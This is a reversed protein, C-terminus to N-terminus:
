VAKTSKLGEASGELAPEHKALQAIFGHYFSQEMGSLIPIATAGGTAMANM